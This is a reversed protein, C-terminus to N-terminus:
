RRVRGRRAPRRVRARPRSCCARRSTAARGGAQSHPTRVVALTRWGALDVEVRARVGPGPDPFVIRGRGRSWRYGGEGPYFGDFTLASLPSAAPVAVPIQVQYALIVAAAAALALGRAPPPALPALRM